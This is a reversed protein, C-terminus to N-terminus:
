DLHSEIIHLIIALLNLIATILTIKAEIMKSQNDSKLHRPRKKM